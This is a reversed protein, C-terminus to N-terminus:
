KKRRFLGIIGNAIEKPSPILFGAFLMLLALVWPNIENVTVNEVSESRVRNNDSSQVVDRRAQPRVIRQETVRTTGITQTNTKGAQVNAAVKPGGGTLLSLPSGSCGLLLTGSFVLLLLHSRLSLGSPLKLSM